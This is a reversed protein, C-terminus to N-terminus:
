DICVTTCFFHLCFQSFDLQHHKSPLRPPTSQKQQLSNQGHQVQLILLHLLRQALPSGRVLHVENRRNRFRKKTRMCLSRAPWFLAIMCCNNLSFTLKGSNVSWHHTQQLRHVAELLARRLLGSISIWSIQWKNLNQSTGLHVVM